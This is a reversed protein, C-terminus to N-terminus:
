RRRRPQTAIRGLAVEAATSRTEPRLWPGPTTSHLRARGTVVGKRSCVFAGAKTKAVLALLRRWMAFIEPYDPAEVVGIVEFGHCRYIPVSWGSAAELYAPLGDADARALGRHL